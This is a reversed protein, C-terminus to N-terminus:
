DGFDGRMFGVTKKGGIEERCNAKVAFFCLAGLAKRRPFVRNVIM